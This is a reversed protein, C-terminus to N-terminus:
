VRRRYVPLNVREFGNREAQEVIEKTGALFYLWKVEGKRAISLVGELLCKLAQVTDRKRNIPNQPISEIFLVAQVPMAMRLSGNEAALTVTNKGFCDLSYFDQKEIWDVITQSEEPNALRVIM